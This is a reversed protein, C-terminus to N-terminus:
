QALSEAVVADTVCGQDMAAELLQEFQVRAHLESEHDANEILVCYPSSEYLPVRMQGFHRAVLALAFQGMVEFGTLGAGLQKHALGLLTVAADLSPVAAWATLSAAPQPYLKMTAATIIGLTGESG